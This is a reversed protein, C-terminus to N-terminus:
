TKIKIPYHDGKKERTLFRRKEQSSKGGEKVSYSNGRSSYELKKLLVLAGEKDGKKLV